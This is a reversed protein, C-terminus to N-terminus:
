LAGCLRLREVLNEFAVQEVISKEMLTLADISDKIPALFLIIKDLAENNKLSVTPFTYNSLSYDLSFNKIIDGNGGFSWVTDTDTDTAKACDDIVPLAISMKNSSWDIVISPKGLGLSTGDFSYTLRLIKLIKEMNVM